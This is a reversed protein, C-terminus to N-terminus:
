HERARWPPRERKPHDDRQMHGAAWVPDCIRPEGFPCAVSRRAGRTASSLRGGEVAAMGESVGLSPLDVSAISATLLVGRLIVGPPAERDEVM